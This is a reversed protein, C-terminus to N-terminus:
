SWKWNRIEEMDIGNEIIYEQHKELMKECYNQLKTGDFNPLHALTRKEGESYPIDIWKIKYECIM